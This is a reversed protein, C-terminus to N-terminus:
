TQVLEADRASAGMAPALGVRATLIVLVPVVVGLMIGTIAIGSDNLLTGLVVVIGLGALAANMAPIRARMVGLPGPSRWVYAAIAVYVLPLIFAFRTAGVVDLNADLKRHLVVWLDGGNGGLLRGLHTRQDPARALDIAAFLGLLVVAAAGFAAVLRWRFRWGFLMAATVGFAPVMSLVGGVDAGFFPLGDVVIALALIASACWAGRRGGIRHAVLGALLVAGAALQAFGLNGLGAYRGGITPSYGFTGNFQLRAGTLVDVVIVGVVASLAVIVPTISRRDASSYVAVAALISAGVVFWWYTRLGSQAFDMLGALATVPLFFLLALAAIELAAVGADRRRARPLWIAALGALTFVCGAFVGGAQTVARDRFQARTNTDALWALRHELDGGARGFEFPRGEMRSPREVRLLDLITPAVDVLAVVGAHRTYASRLLGPRLGPARLSAVTTTLPGPSQGPALVLVADRAPDLGALVTNLTTADFAELAARRQFPATLGVLIKAEFVEVARDGRAAAVVGDRDALALPIDSRADTGTVVRRAVGARALTDGLLGVQADFLLANNHSAIRRQAHCTWV